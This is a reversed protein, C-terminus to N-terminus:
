TLIVDFGSDDNAGYGMNYRDAIKLLALQIKEAQKETVDGQITFIIMRKRRGWPQDEM